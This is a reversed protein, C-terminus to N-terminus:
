RCGFTFTVAVDGLPAANAAIAGTVAFGNMNSAEYQACSTKGGNSSVRLDVFQPAPTNCRDLPDGSVSICNADEVCADKTCTGPSLGSCAPGGIICQGKNGGSCHGSKLCGGPVNLADLLTASASGTTLPLSFPATPAAFDDQSCPVQDPGLDPATTMITFQASVLDVCDGAASQGSPALTTGGNLTGPYTDDTKGPDVAVGCADTTIPATCDSDKTCAPTSTGNCSKTANCTGASPVQSSCDGNTNCASHTGGTCRKTCQTIRSDSCLNFNVPLQTIPSAAGKCDCWGESRVVQVCAGVLPLGPPVVARLTKGPSNILYLFDPELNFGAGPAIGQAEGEGPALNCPKNAGCDADNQCPGLGTQCQGHARGATCVELNLGGALPVSLNLGGAGPSSVKLLSTNPICGASSCQNQNCQTPANGCATADDSHCVGPFGNGCTGATNTADCLDGSGDGCIGSTDIACSHEVCQIGFRCLNPYYAQTNADFVSSCSTAKKASVGSINPLSNKAAVADQFLALMDPVNALQQKIAADETALMLFDTVYKAACNPDAKGDGDLDCSGGRPPAFGGNAPANGGGSILHGLSSGDQSLSVALNEDTCSASCTPVPCTGTGAGTCCTNGAPLKLGTCESNSKVKGPVPICAANSHCPTGNNGSTACTGQRLKEIDKRFTAIKSKGPKANAADYVAALKAECSKAANAMCGGGPNCDSIGTLVGKAVEARILDKCGEMATYIASNLKGVEVEIKNQCIKVDARAGAPALVMAVAVAAVGWQAMRGRYKM